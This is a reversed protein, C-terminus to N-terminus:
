VFGVEANSQLQALIVIWGTEWTGPVSWTGSPSNESTSSFGPGESFCAVRTSGKLPCLHGAGMAEKGVERRGPSCAWLSRQWGAPLVAVIARYKNESQRQRM